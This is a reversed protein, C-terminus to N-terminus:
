LRNNVLRFSKEVLAFPDDHVAVFLGALDNSPVATGACGTEAMLQLHQDGLGKLSCKVPGDILPVFLAFLRRGTADDPPLETLLLQTEPPIDSTRRAHLPKMWWLKFRHLALLKTARPVGLRWTRTPSKDPAARLSIFAAG